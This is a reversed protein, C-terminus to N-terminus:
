SLVEENSLWRELGTPLAKHVLWEPSEGSGSVIDQRESDQGTTARVWSPTLSRSDRHTPTEARTDRLCWAVRLRWGRRFFGQQVKVLSLGRGIGRM